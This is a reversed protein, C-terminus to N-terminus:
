MAAGLTSDAAMEEPATGDAPDFEELSPHPDLAAIIAAVGALAIMGAAGTVGITLDSGGSTLMLPLGASANLVGHLIAVAVVSRSKVRVYSFPVALLVCWLVMLGVGLQPHQPYNHGLLILPAHWLGWVLGIALSARWFGMPALERQLLGRWGLEEGFGFLANVTPGLLLIQV